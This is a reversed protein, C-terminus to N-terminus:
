QEVTSSAACPQDLGMVNVPTAREDSSTITAEIGFHKRNSLCTPPAQPAIRHGGLLGFLREVCQLKSTGDDITITRRM